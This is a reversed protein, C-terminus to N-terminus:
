TLQGFLAANNRELKEALRKDFRELLHKLQEETMTIELIRVM